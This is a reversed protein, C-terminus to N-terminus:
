FSSFIYADNQPVPLVRTMANDATTEVAKAKLAPLASAILWLPSDFFM